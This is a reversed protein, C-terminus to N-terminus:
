SRLPVSANSSLYEAAALTNVKTLKVLKSAVRLQQTWQEANKLDATGGMLREHRSLFWDECGRSWFGPWIGSRLFTSQKPWWSMDAM